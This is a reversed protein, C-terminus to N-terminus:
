SAPIFESSYFGKPVHVRTGNERYTPTYNAYMMWEDDFHSTGRYDGRFISTNM